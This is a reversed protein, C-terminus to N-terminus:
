AKASDRRRGLHSYPPASVHVATGPQAARQHARRRRSYVSSHAVGTKEQETERERASNPCTPTASRTSRKKWLSSRATRGAARSAEAPTTQGGCETRWRGFPNTGRRPRFRDPLASSDITSAPSPNSADSTSASPSSASPSSSSTMSANEHTDNKASPTGSVADTRGLSRDPHDSPADDAEVDNKGAEVDRSASAGSANKAEEDGAATPPIPDRPDRHTRNARWGRRASRRRAAAREADRTKRVLDEAERAARDSGVPLEASRWSRPDDLQWVDPGFRGVHQGEAGVPAGAADEGASAFFTRAEAPGAPEFESRLTFWELARACARAARTRRGTGSASWAARGIAKLTPDTSLSRLRGRRATCRTWRAGRTGCGCAASLTAPSWGRAPRTSRSPFWARGLSTGRSFTARM